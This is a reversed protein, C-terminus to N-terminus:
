VRVPRGFGSKRWGARSIGEVSKSEFLGSSEWQNTTRGEKRGEREDVGEISSSSGPSSYQPWGCSCSPCINNRKSTPCEENPQLNHLPENSDSMLM